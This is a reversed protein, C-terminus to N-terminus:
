GGGGLRRSCATPETTSMASTTSNTSGDALVATPIGDAVACTIFGAQWGVRQAPQGPVMEGERFTVRVDEIPTAGLLQGLAGGGDALGGVEDDGLLACGDVHPAGQPPGPLGAVLGCPAEAATCSARALVALRMSM